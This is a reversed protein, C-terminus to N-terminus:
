WSLRLSVELSSPLMRPVHSGQGRPGWRTRTMVEKHARLTQPRKASPCLLNGSPDVDQRRGPGGRAERILVHSSFLIFHRQAPHSLPGSRQSGLLGRGPVLLHQSLAATVSHSRPSFSATQLTPELSGEGRTSLGASSRGKRPALQDGLLSTAPSTGPASPLPEPGGGEPDWIHQCGAEPM